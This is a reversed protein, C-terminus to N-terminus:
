PLSAPAPEEDGGALIAAIAPNSTLDAISSVILRPQYSFRSVDSEHTGGSLVLVTYYGMQIAGLIDTEMTDGIM